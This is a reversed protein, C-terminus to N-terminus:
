KKIISGILIGMALAVSLLAFSEHHLIQSFQFWVGIRSYQDYLVLFGAVLLIVCTSLPVIWNLKMQTYGAKTLM